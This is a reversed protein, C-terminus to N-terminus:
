NVNKMQNGHKRSFPLFILVTTGKNIESIMEIKGNHNQIIKKSVMLGLGTGESKTTYFPKGVLDLQEKTIGVGEDMVEIVFHAEQKKLKVYIKGGQPMAEISNKILNVLVQKIQNEECKLLFSDGEVVTVIEINKIIAQTNLLTVVSKVIISLDRESFNVLHPKSLVMFESVIFNIREIEDMMIKLYEKTSKAGTDQAILKTFGKLSTLPNRIEHAVGAALEGVLSLKESERLRKEGERLEKMQSLLKRDLLEGALLMIFVVVVAPISIFSGLIESTVLYRSDSLLSNERVLFTTGWMGIYHMGSIGVGMLLSSIVKRKIYHAQSQHNFYFLLWLSGYAATIAVFVALIILPINYSILFKGEMASMGIYHMCVIGSGMLISAIILRRRNLKMIFFALGTGIISFVMSLLVIRIDYFIEYPMKMAFMGIFHMTWIGIGMAAACGLLWINYMYDKFIIMKWRLDLAIYSFIIGALISFVFWYYNFSSHIHEM